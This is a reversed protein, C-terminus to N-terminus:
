TDKLLPDVATPTPPTTALAPSAALALFGAVVVGLIAGHAFGRMHAEQLFPPPAAPSREGGNREGCRYRAAAAVPNADVWRPVSASTRSGRLGSLSRSQSIPSRSRIPRTRLQSWCVM